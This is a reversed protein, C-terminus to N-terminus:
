GGGSPLGRRALLMEAVELDEPVTVKLNWRSGPIMRVRGGARAFLTSDDTAEVGDAQAKAYARELLSRPFGQPTQAHWLGKRDPTEAVWSESGVAKLTDSAPVGVVAGVGEGVGRICREVLERTVLPRAADHVLVVDIEPPLARLAAFVSASRTAGGSVVGVRPGLGELWAPPSAADEPALAVVVHQVEPHALFPRLAHLLLPAGAIELFPKRAGGM